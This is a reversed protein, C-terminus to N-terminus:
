RCDLATHFFRRHNLSFKQPFALFSLLRPKHAVHSIPLQKPKGVQPVGDASGQLLYAEAVCVTEDRDHEDYMSELLPGFTEMAAFFVSKARQEMSGSM